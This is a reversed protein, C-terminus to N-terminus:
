KLLEIVRKVEGPEGWRILPLLYTVRSRPQAVRQAIVSVAGDMQEIYADALAGQLQALASANAWAAQRAKAISFEIVAKDKNKMVRRIFRMPWWIRELKAQMDDTLAAIIDNIKEFDNQLGTIEDGPATLAAAIALDLNIHANVGLILHQLVIPSDNECADFALRWSQTPAQGQRYQSWAQLYRNAFLVDLKEMRAGDEFQGAQIGDRVAETMIKYLLAFYAQRSGEQECTRIIHNLADLVEDITRAPTIM